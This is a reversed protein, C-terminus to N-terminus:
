KENLIIEMSKCYSGCGGVGEAILEEVCERADDESVATVNFTEKKSLDTEVRVTYHKIRDREGAILAPEVGKAQWNIITMPAKRINKLMKVKVPAITGDPNVKRFRLCGCSCAWIPPNRPIVDGGMIANKRYEILYEWEAMDGTGYVIDVVQEGCKPCKRPKREVNLIRAAM